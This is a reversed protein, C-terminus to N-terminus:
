PQAIARIAGAVVDPAENPVLHGSDAERLEAGPIMRALAESPERYARPTRTGAVMIVRTGIARLARPAVAWQNVVNLDSAFARADRLSALARERGVVDLAQPGCVVRSFAAIAGASGREAVGEELAARLQSTAETGTSGLWLMPPEVLVAARVLGPERLIVDLCTMAGFSHGCLLAPALDLRRLLQILDDGHEPVPAATFGEPAGSEGYARRDYAITRFDDGLEARVEDWITRTSATGHVLVVPEGSGREDYALEVGAGEVTAASV